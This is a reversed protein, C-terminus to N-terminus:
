QGERNWAKVVDAYVVEMEADNKAVVVREVFDCQEEHPLQFICDLTAYLLDAEGRWAECFGRAGPVLMDALATLRERVGCVVQLARDIERHVVMADADAIVTIPQGIVVKMSSEKLVTITNKPTVIGPGVVAIPLIAAPTDATAVSLALRAAGTKSHRGRTAAVKPGGATFYGPELPTGDTATRGLARTGQPYIAVDTGRERIVAAADHLAQQRQEKSGKRHVFIMGGLEACLGIKLVRYLFFNDIFHDRALMYRLRLPARQKPTQLSMAAPTMIFDLLSQHNSCMIVPGTLADLHERGEVQVRLRGLQMMRRGWLGLMVDMIDPLRERYGPTKALRLFINALFITSCVGHLMPWLVRKAAQGSRYDMGRATDMHKPEVFRERVIGFGRFYASFFEQPHMHPYQMLWDILECKLLRHRRHVAVSLSLAALVVILISVFMLQAADHSTTHSSDAMFAVVLWQQLLPITTPNDPLATGGLIWRAAVSWHWLLFAWYALLAYDRVWHICWDIRGFVTNIKRVMPGGRVPFGVSVFRRLMPITYLSLPLLVCAIFLILM